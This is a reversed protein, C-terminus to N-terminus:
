KEVIIKTVYSHSSSTIILSYVGSSFSSVDISDTKESSSYVTRGFVDYLTILRADENNILKFNVVGSAPNPYVLVSSDRNLEAIGVFQDAWRQTFEQFYINAITANHVSVSNEDNKTEGSNSWNHSGTWLIPDSSTNSQDVIMYKHHFLWSFSNIKINNSMAGKMIFYSTSAGSTDNLIGKSILSNSTIQNAVKSAIDSRTELLLGFYLDTNASAITSIIHSTIGDSPSFYSEVRTGNINYEHPTNDKKFQGFKGLSTNPSSSVSSDGWMEDFELKYGRAISQDQFIIVNNADTTLQNQTWNTSGTWLIATNPNPNYADIIVFKNHMITYSAGVPSPLRKIGLNITNLGSQTTTNDYIIRVKVGRIYAANVANTIALGGSSNDWNYITIDITSQARNIYAVLSDAIKPNYFANTSSSVSNDVTKNFYVKIIGTSLSKTCYVRVLSKATDVGNVSFVQAYYITAPSASVINVSPSASTGIGNITGLELNQTKGYKIFFSGAINTTWNITIGSTNINTPFPQNTLYISSPNIIDNVDRLVLQYGSTCGSVPASCFQSGIGVVNVLSTPILSGVLPSASNIRVVCSQSGSTITYNTNGTFTGGGSSFTCSNIRVLRGEHVEALQNPTILSPTPLALSSAIITYTVPTIELLNNYSTLTGNAIVSDGRNVTSLNTGYISIGATVDQMYRISGLEAGNSIIGKVTVNSGVTAARASAITQSKLKNFVVLSLLILTIKTTKM